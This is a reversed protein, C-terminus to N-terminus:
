RITDPPCNASAPATRRLSVGSASSSSLFQRLWPIVIDCFAAPTEDFPCHGSDPITHLVAQPLMHQQIYRAMAPPLAPDREGWVLLTAATVAGPHLRISLDNLRRLTELCLPAVTPRRFPGSLTAILDPTVRDRRYYLARLFLRVGTPGNLAHMMRNGALPLRALQVFARLHPALCTAVNPVSTTDVLVLGHVLHPHQAATLMAVSGGLSNGIIVAPAAGTHELFAALQNAWLQKNPRTAPMASYGFGYLDLAYCTACSALAPLVSAWHELLSGYGHILVVSLPRRPHTQWYRMPGHHGRFWHESHTYRTSM